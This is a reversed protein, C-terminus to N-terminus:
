LVTAPGRRLENLGKEKSEPSHSELKAGEGISSQKQEDQRKMQVTPITMANLPVIGALVSTGYGKGM